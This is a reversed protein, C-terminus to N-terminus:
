KSTTPQVDGNGLPVRCTVVTGGTARPEITLDGHMASARHRMTRLGSGRPSGTKLGTGDDSVTLEIQTETRMLRIVVQHAEGHIVANNVAEQVIRFLHNVTMHDRPFVLGDWEFRCTIGYRQGVEATFRQLADPLGGEGVELPLLTRSVSKVQGITRSVAQALDRAMAEAHGSLRASLGHLGFSLATLEQGISDHLERGIRWREREAAEAVRQGCRRQDILRALHGALAQTMTRPLTPVELESFLLVVASVRGGAM